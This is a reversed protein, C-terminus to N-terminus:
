VNARRAALWRWVSGQPRTDGTLVYHLVNPDTLLWGMRKFTDWRGCCLIADGSALVTDDPPLLQEVDGRVLLLPLWPLRRDREGPDAFLHGIKLEGGSLAAGVAPAEQPTLRATWLQPTEGNLLPSLRELLRTAWDNGHGRALRLFDKLLPTSILALIGNAMIAASHVVMDLKAARFLAENERANQRAVLFLKPNLERATITISLNDADKDTGAVIGSAQEIHAAELAASGIGRGAVTGTPAGAKVPDKEIIVTRLGLEDFYRHVAKGFRGYGVLVWTGRPPHTCRPLTRGPPQTLWEQVLRMDPAHLGLALRDAFADFPDIIADINCAELSERTEPLEARCIVQLQPNLLKAAIGIRLNVRDNNTIAVVGACRRHNLGALELNAAHGADTCLGPVYSDLEELLLENIRDQHSELVVASLGHDSMDRVVLSGTDGYGCVVYFRSTLNTVGRAFRGERVAQRLAPEQVLTIISGIAYAWAVVGLYITATMWLRQADTFAHPLEGFGITTVTYTVVYFAHFFDMRQPQGAADSGPILVLGLVSIAYAGILVLLPARMRRLVLSIARSRAATAM